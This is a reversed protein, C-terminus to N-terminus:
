RGKTKRSIDCLILLKRLELKLVSFVIKLQTEIYEFDRQTNSEKFYKKAKIIYDNLDPINLEHVHLFIGTYNKSKTIDTFSKLIGKPTEESFLKEFYGYLAIFGIM